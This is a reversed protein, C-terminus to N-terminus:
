NRVGRVVPPESDVLQSPLGYLSDPSCLISLSRIEPNHYQPLRVNHGLIREGGVGQMGCPDADGKRRGMQVQLYESFVM